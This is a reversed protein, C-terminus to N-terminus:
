HTDDYINIKSKAESETKFPGEYPYRQIFIYKPCFAIVKIGNQDM